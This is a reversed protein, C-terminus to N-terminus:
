PTGGFDDPDVDELWELADLRTCGIELRLDLLLLALKRHIVVVVAEVQREPSGPEFAVMGAEGQEAMDAFLKSLKECLPSDGYRRLVRMLRDLTDQSTDEATM